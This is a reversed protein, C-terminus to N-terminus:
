RATTPQGASTSACCRRGRRWARAAAGRGPHDTLAGGRARRPAPHAGHIRDPESTDIRQDFRAPINLLSTNVVTGAGKRRHIYGREELRVLAERVAPRSTALSAALSPESPMTTGHRAADLWVQHLRDDLSPELPASM